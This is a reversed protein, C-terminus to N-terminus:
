VGMNVFISSDRFYRGNSLLGREFIILGGGGIVEGWGGLFVNTGVGDALFLVAGRFTGNCFSVDEPFLQTFMFSIDHIIVHAKM